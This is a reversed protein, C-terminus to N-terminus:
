GPRSVSWREATFSGTAVIESCVRELLHEYTRRAKGGPPVDVGM